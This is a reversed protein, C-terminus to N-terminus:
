GWLLIDHELLVRSRWSLPNPWSLQTAETLHHEQKTAWWSNSRTLIAMMCLLQPQKYSPPWPIAQLETALPSADNYAFNDHNFVEYWMDEHNHGQHRLDKSNQQHEQWESDQEFNRMEKTAEDIKKHLESLLLMKEKRKEVQQYIAELNSIEQDLADDQPTPSIAKRKQNRAERLLAEDEQNTDLTGLIFGTTTAKKPPM